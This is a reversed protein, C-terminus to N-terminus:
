IMEETIYKWAAGVADPMESPYREDLAIERHNRADNIERQTDNVLFTLWEPWRARDDGHQALCAHCLSDRWRTRAGCM